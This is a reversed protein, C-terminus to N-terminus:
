AQRNNGKIHSPTTAKTAIAKNINEYQCQQGQQLPPTTMM